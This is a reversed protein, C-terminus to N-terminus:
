TRDQTNTSTRDIWNDVVIDIAGDNIITSNDDPNSYGLYGRHNDGIETIMCINTGPIGFDCERDGDADVNLPLQDQVDIEAYNKPLSKKIDFIPIYLNKQYGSQGLAKDAEFSPYIQFPPYPNEPIPELIYDEGNISITFNTVETEIAHGYDSKPAGWNTQDILIDQPNTSVEEDDVAAGLLDVSKITFNNKNWTENEHLSELSSLVVRAGLSHALLRLDTGPCEYKINSVLKALKPGNEAALFKAGFWTTDSPWSFGILPHIFSNNELSLKVRNLREKGKDESEEWGHVFIVVTENQCKLENLNRYTENQYGKSGTVMEYTSSQPDRTSVYYLPIKATEGLSSTAISTNYSAGILLLLMLGFFLVLMMEYNMSVINKM